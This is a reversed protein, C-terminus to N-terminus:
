IISKVIITLDIALLQKDSFCLNVLPHIIAIKLFQKKQKPIYDFSPAKSKNLSFSDQQLPSNGELSKSTDNNENENQSLASQVEDLPLSSLFNLATKAVEAGSRKFYGPSSGVLPGTQMAMQVLSYIEVSVEKVLKEFLSYEEKEAIFNPTSQWKDVEHDDDEESFSSTNTTTSNTEM